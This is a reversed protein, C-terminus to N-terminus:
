DRLDKDWFESLKKAIKKLEETQYRQSGDKNKQQFLVVSSTERKECILLNSNSDLEFRDVNTKSYRKSSKWIGWFAIKQVKLSSSDQFITYNTSIIKLYFFALSFAFFSFGLSGLTYSWTNSSILLYILPGFAFAFILATLYFEKLIQQFSKLEGIKLLVMDGSSEFILLRKSDVARTKSKFYHSVLKYNLETPTDNISLKWNQNLENALKLLSRPAFRIKNDVVANELILQEGSTEVLSLNYEKTLLIKKVSARRIIMKKARIKWLGIYEIKIWDETQTLIVKVRLTFWIQLMFLLLPFVLLPQILWGYIYFSSFLILVLVGLTFFSFQYSLIWSYGKSLPPERFIYRKQESTKQTYYHQYNYDM